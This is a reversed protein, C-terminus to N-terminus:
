RKWGDRLNVYTQDNFTSVRLIATTGELRGRVATLRIVTASSRSTSLNM